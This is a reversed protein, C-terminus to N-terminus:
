KRRSRLSLKKVEQEFRDVKYMATDAPEDFHAALMERYTDYERQRDTLGEGTEETRISEATPRYSTVIACKGKLETDQFQDYFRCASYISNAVLMANGRGSQLRDRTEM